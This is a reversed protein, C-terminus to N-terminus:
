HSFLRRDLQHFAKETVELVALGLQFGQTQSALLYPFGPVIMREEPGPKYQSPLYVSSSLNVPIGVSEPGCGHFWRDGIERLSGKQLALSKYCNDIERIFYSKVRKATSSSDFNCENSM